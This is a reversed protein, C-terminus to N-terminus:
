RRTRASPLWTVPVYEMIVDEPDDVDEEDSDHEQAQPLSQGQSTFVNELWARGRNDLLNFLLRLDRLKAPALRVSAAYKLPFDENALNFLQAQYPSRGPMLRVRKDVGDTEEDFNYTNKMVYGEPYQADVVLQRAKAFGVSQTRRLTCASKLARLDYFDTREMVTVNNEEGVAKRIIRLYDTPSYIHRCKRIKKEIHGFARDCPLFSHGPVMFVLEVKDLTLAHILRLAMVVINSNKNQGACNDCFIRLRKFQNGPDTLESELWKLICSGIEDSGRRATMQWVYMNGKKKNLDYVCFNYIWMKRKYYAVGTHLRPCPLTQQLDICITRLQSDPPAVRSEKEASSLLQQVEEALKQHDELTKIDADVNVEQTEKHAITSKLLECRNCLDTKPPRFVINYDRTFVTRYFRPSVCGEGTYTTEMWQVYNAHLETITLGTELYRRHPSHARSYHSATVVLNGIHEHVHDLPPGVISKSNGMRGRRDQTPTGTPSLIRKGMLIQLKKRTIGHLSMFASRCVRTETYRLKVYYEYTRSRRSHERMTRKRKIAVEKILSQLHQNQKDYDGIDWFSKFIQTAAEQGLKTFCGDDCPPGLTKAQMM